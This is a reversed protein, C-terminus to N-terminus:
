KPLAAEAADEGKKIMAKCNEAGFNMTGFGTLDPHIIIDAAKVNADYKVTEPHNKIYDFVIDTSEGLLLSVQTKAEEEPMNILNALLASYESPVMSEGEQQLDIAIIYEAGMNQAVDVPMNNYLGGDVLNLDGIQVSTYMVPIAASAMVSALLDGEKLEVETLTKADSAVCRFPIKLDAFTSVGKKQYLGSLIEKIAPSSKADKEDLNVIFDELEDVTYGAAYMSGVIAGISTGAIYDINIGRQEIIRLAGIEAAGKAGGGSLVLGIKPSQPEPTPQENEDDDSKNCAVMTLILLLLILNQLKKM